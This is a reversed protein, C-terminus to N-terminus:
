LSIFIIGVLLNDSCIYLSKYNCTHLILFLLINQQVRFFAEYIQVIKEKLPMKSASCKRLLVPAVKERPSSSPSKSM